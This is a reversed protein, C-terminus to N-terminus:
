EGSDMREAATQAATDVSQLLLLAKDAGTDDYLLSGSAESSQHHLRPGAFSIDSDPSAGNLTGTNRTDAQDLLDQSQRREKDKIVMEELVQTHYDIRESIETVRNCAFVGTDRIWQSETQESLETLERLDGESPPPHVSLFQTFSEKAEKPNIGNNESLVVAGTISWTLAQDIM